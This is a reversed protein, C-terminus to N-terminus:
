RGSLIGKRNPDVEEAVEAVGAVAATVEEVDGVVEEVVATEVATEVTVRAQHRETRATM